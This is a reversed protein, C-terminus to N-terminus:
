YMWMWECMLRGMEGDEWKSIKGNEWKGMKTSLKGEWKKTKM